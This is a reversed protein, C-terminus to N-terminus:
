CVSTTRGDLPDGPPVYIVLGLHSDDPANGGHEEDKSLEYLHRRIRSCSSIPRAARRRIASGSQLDRAMCSTHRRVMRVFARHM